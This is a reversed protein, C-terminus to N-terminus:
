TTSRRATAAAHAGALRGMTYSFGEISGAFVFPYTGGYIANADRGTAYLGPVPRQDEDLAQGHENIAIGGSSGYSGLCFKAAYFPGRDGLPRMYRADKFFEEDIGRCCMRDYGAVTTALVRAPIELQAALEDLTDARFLNGYGSKVAQPVQNELPELSGPRHYLGFLQYDLGRERLDRDVAESLLMYAYSGPQRRIANAADSPNKVIAEDVFRLGFQNVLLGPQRFVSLEPATGGPGGYPDPLYLYTELMTPSKAAGADWAMFLGEGQHQDHTFMEFTFLDRGQRLGTFREILEPSGQYGGTAIMTNVARLREVAGDPGAVECGRVRGDETLLRVARTQLLFRVGLERCHRELVDAIVPNWPENRVHFVAKGGTYYSIVRDFHVGLREFWEVTPASNRVLASVVRGDTRYRAHEMLIHYADACTIDVHYDAQLPTEVAFMGLSGPNVRNPGGLFDTKEVVTVEAGAQAASLAAALGAGGGGVILVDAVSEPTM